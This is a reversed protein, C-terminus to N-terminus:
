TCYLINLFVIVLVALVVIGRHCVHNEHCYHVGKLIEIVIQKVTNEPVGNPHVDFFAFLDNGGKESVLYLHEQTHIVDFLHVIQPCKLKRLIDVENALRLLLQVNTVKEKKIIKVALEDAVATPGGKTISKDIKRCAKVSAFQGEGLFAGLSFNGVRNENEEFNPSSEMAPINNHVEPHYQCCTVWLVSQLTAKIEDYKQRLAVFEDFLAQQQGHFAKMSEVANLSKEEMLKIENNRKQLLDEMEKERTPINRDCIVIENEQLEAKTPRSSEGRRIKKRPFYAKLAAVVDESGIEGFILVSESAPM